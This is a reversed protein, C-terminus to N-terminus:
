PSSCIYAKKGVNGHKKGGDWGMDKKEKKRMLYEKTKECIDGTQFRRDPVVSQLLKLISEIGSWNYQDDFKGAADLTETVDDGADIEKRPCEVADHCLCLSSSEM